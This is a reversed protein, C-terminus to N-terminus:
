HWDGEQLATTTCNLGNSTLICFAFWSSYSIIFLHVPFFKRLIHIHLSFFSFAFTLTIQLSLSTIDWYVSTVEPMQVLFGIWTSPSM